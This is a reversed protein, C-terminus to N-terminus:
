DVLRRTFEMEVNEGHPKAGGNADRTMDQVMSSPRLPTIRRRGQSELRLQRPLFFALGFIYLISVVAVVVGWGAIYITQAQGRGSYQPWENMM